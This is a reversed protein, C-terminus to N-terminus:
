ADDGDDAVADEEGSAPPTPEGEADALPMDTFRDIKALRRGIRDLAALTVDGVAHLSEPVCVPEEGDVTPPASDVIAM